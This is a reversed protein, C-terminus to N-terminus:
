VPEPAQSSVSREEATAGSSAPHRRPSRADSWSEFTPMRSCSAPSIRPSPHFYSSGVSSGPIRAASCGSGPRGVEPEETASRIWPAHSPRQTPQVIPLGTSPRVGTWILLYRSATGSQGCAAQVLGV